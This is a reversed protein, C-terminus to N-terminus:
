NLHCIRLRTRRDLLAGIDLRVVDDVHTIGDPPADTRPDDIRPDVVVQRLQLSLFQDGESGGAATRNLM